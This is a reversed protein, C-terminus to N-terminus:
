ASVGATIAFASVILSIYLKTQQQTMLLEVSQVTASVKSEPSFLQKAITTM